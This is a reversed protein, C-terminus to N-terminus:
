YYVARCRCCISRLSARRLRGRDREDEGRPPPPWCAAAAAAALPEHRAGRPGEDGGRERSARLQHGGARQQERLHQRRLERRRRLQLLLPARRGAGVGARRPAGRVHDGGHQHLGRRRTPRGLEPLRRRRRGCSWSGDTRLSSSPVARRLPIALGPVVHCRGCAAPRLWCRSSSV